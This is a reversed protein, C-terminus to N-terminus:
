RIALLFYFIGGLCDGNNRSSLFVGLHPIAISHSVWLTLNGSYLVREFFTYELKHTTEMKGM